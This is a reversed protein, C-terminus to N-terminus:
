TSHGHAAPVPFPQDLSRAPGREDPDSRKGAEVATLRNRLDPLVERMLKEHEKVRRVAEDIGVLEHDTCRYRIRVLVQM